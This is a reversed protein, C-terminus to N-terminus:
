RCVIKTLELCYVVKNDSSLEHKLISDSMAFLLIQTYHRMDPIELAFVVGSQALAWASTRLCWAHFAGLIYHIIFFKVNLVYNLM